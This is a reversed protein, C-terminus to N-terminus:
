FCGATFGSGPNKVEELAGKRLMNDVEEHLTRPKVSGLNYSPFEICEQTAPALYHFSHSVRLSAGGGELAKSGATGLIAVAATLHRGGAASLSALVELVGQREM